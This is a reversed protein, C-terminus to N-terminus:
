KGKFLDYLINSEAYIKWIKNKDYPTCCDNFLEVM